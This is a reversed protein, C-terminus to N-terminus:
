AARITIKEIFPISINDRSKLVAKIQVSAMEDSYLRYACIIEGEDKETVIRYGDGTKAKTYGTNPMLEKKLIIDFQEEVIIKHNLPWLSDYITRFIGDEGTVSYEGDGEHRVEGSRDLIINAYNSERIKISYIGAPLVQVGHVWVGNISIESGKFNITKESYLIASVERLGRTFDWEECRTTIDKGFIRIDNSRIFDDPLILKYEWDNTKTKVREKITILRNDSSDNINIASPVSLDANRVSLVPRIRTWMKEDVSIFYDIETDLGLSSSDCTGIAIKSFNGAMEVAPTILLAQGTFSTRTLYLSRITVSYNDKGTSLIDRELKHFIIKVYRDTSPEIGLSTDYAYTPRVIKGTYEKGTDSTYVTIMQAKECSIEVQSFLSNDKRDIVIDMKVSSDENAEGAIRFTKGTNITDQDKHDIYGVGISNVNEVKAKNIKIATRITASVYSLPYEELRIIEKDGKDDDPNAYIRDQRITVGRSESSVYIDDEFMLVFSKVEGMMNRELVAAASTEEKLKDILRNLNGIRKSLADSYQTNRKSIKSLIEAGDVFLMETADYISLIGRGDLPAPGVELEGVLSTRSAKHSGIEKLSAETIPLGNRMLYDINASRM